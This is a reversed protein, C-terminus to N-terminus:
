GGSPSGWRNSLWSSGGTPTGSWRDSRWVGTSWRSASWRSASWSDGSWRSASCRSASWRSASWGDGSWRSANWTGGTWSGTTAALTSWEGASFANGFIDVEGRLETGAADVLHAGGRSAELSGLGTSLAHRQVALPTPTTRAVKLDVMGSGQARSDAVPLRRATRTLLAKVQDPTAGPRQAIVLAAAGSVVAAAQSTGSGRLQRTGVRAGPNDLEATSGPARLSVVSTGPAVLDPARNEDGRSSYGGVVDDAVDYTGRGDAGGVALVWPDYAPNTLRSSSDGRNGAAAVVVIGKRWAVEAAFALPDLQHDQVGDTGFSLNLVRINMGPDARHQVVWDIAAIVQSVDTAGHRDAVKVSVIRADPAVGVFHDEVGKQVPRPTADDRGAIIGAMHTGHGYTDVYRTADSQSEFSLDPGHLVKDPGRLGDVDAVGSDIMAVDVGRGTIGDNWFEGAGTVEQGVWYMSGLDSKPAFGDFQGTSLTVSADPTVALVGPARRLEPVAGVPLHATFADIIGLERDVSGGLERTRDQPGGAVEPAERVIVAVLPGSVSVPAATAAPQAGAGLAVACAALAAAVAGPRCSM